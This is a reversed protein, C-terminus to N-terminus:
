FKTGSFCGKLQAIEWAQLMGKQQVWGGMESEYNQISPNSMYNRTHFYFGVKIRQQNCALNPQEHVHKIRVTDGNVPPCVSVECNGRAM